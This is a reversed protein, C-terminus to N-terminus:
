IWLLVMPLEAAKVFPPMPIEIVFVAPLPETIPPNPRRPLVIANLPLLPTFMSVELDFAIWPLEMKPLVPKPILKILLALLKSPVLGETVIVLAALYELALVVITENVPVYVRSAPFVSVLAIM